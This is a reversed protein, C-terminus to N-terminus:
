GQARSYFNERKALHPADASLFNEQSLRHRYKNQVVRQAIAAQCM